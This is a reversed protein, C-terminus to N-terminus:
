LEVLGRGKLVQLLRSCGAVSVDAAGSVGEDRMLKWVAGHGGPKLMPKLQADLLWEGTEVCM